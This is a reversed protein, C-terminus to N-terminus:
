LIENQNLVGTSLQSKILGQIEPSRLIAEAPCPQAEGSRADTQESGQALGPERSANGASASQGQSPQGHVQAEEPKPQHNSREQAKKSGLIPALTDIQQHRPSRAMRTGGAFTAATTSQSKNKLGAADRQLALTSAKQKAAGGGAGAGNAGQGDAHGEKKKQATKQPKTHHGAHKKKKKKPRRARDKYTQDDSSTGSDEEESFDGLDDKLSAEPAEGAKLQARQAKVMEKRRMKQQINDFFDEFELMEEKNSHFDAAQRGQGQNTNDTDNGSLFMNHAPQDSSSDKYNFNASPQVDNRQGPLQEAQQPNDQQDQQQHQNYDQSRRLQSLAGGPMVQSSSGASVEQIGVLSTNVPRKSNRRNLGATPSGAGGQGAGGRPSHTVTGTKQRQLPRQTPQQSGSAMLQQSGLDATALKNLVQPKLSHRAAPGHLTDNRNLKGHEKRAEEEAQERKERERKLIFPPIFKVFEDYFVDLIKGSVFELLHQEGPLYSHLTKALTEGLSEYDRQSM